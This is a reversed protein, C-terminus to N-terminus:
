RRSFFSFWRNYWPTDSDSPPVPLLPDAEPLLDDPLLPIRDPDSPDEPHILIPPEEHLTCPEQPETGRIFWGRAAPHGHVPDTCYENLARGSLPCFDMEVLSGPCDFAAKFPAGRYAKECQTMLENWITVCPNGQIGKLEAPYDYGMWVGALLRPTYGIFRRDCNNQTTGTKGATEVGLTDTLTLYRAATGRHTVTMLLRTMLAANESSLARGAETAPTNELLVRGERDLV